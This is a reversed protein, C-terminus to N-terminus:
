VRRWERYAAIPDTLTWALHRTVAFDFSADSLPHLAEADVLLGTWSQGELKVQALALMNESFDVATVDGGLGTLVRSIEGTGCAIDLIKQGVLTEQPGLDFASRVLRQWEPMSYRDEIRHSASLDFMAARGSWHSRIEDKLTFNRLPTNL